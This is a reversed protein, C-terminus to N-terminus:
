LDNLDVPEGNKNFAHYHGNRIYEAFRNCVTGDALNLNGVMQIIISLMGAFNGNRAAKVIEPGFSGTCNFYTLHPNLNYGNNYATGREINFSGTSRTILVDADLFIRGHFYFDYQEKEIKQLVKKVVSNLYSSTLLDVDYNIPAKVDVILLGGEIRLNTIPDMTQLISMLETMKDKIGTSGHEFLSLQALAANYDKASTTYHNLSDEMTRQKAQVTKNLADIRNLILRDAYEAFINITRTGYIEKLVAAYTKRRTEGAVYFGLPDPTDKGLRPLSWDVFDNFYFAAQDLVAQEKKLYIAVFLQLYQLIAWDTAHAMGTALNQRKFLENDDPITPVTQWALQTNYLNLIFDQKPWYLIARFRRVEEPYKDLALPTLDVFDLIADKTEKSLTRSLHVIDYVVETLPKEETDSYDLRYNYAMIYLGTHKNFNQNQRPTERSTKNLLPGRWIIRSTTLDGLTFIDYLRERLSRKSLSGTEANYYTINETRLINTLLMTSVPSFASELLAYKLGDINDSRSKGSLPNYVPINTPYAWLNANATFTRLNENDFYQDIKM